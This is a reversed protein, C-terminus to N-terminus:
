PAPWALPRTSIWSPSSLSAAARRPRGLGAHIEATPAAENRSWRSILWGLIARQLRRPKALICCTATPHPSATSLRAPRSPRSILRDLRPKRQRKQQGLGPAPLEPTFVEMLQQRIMEEASEPWGSAKFVKLYADAAEQRATM